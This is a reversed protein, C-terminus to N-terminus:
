AGTLLAILERVAQGRHSIANKEAADLEAATLDREPLLFLPDYGFGGDGREARLIEGHWSGQAILPAPDEAYRLLVLTCHFHAQRQGDPVEALAALLQRRNAADTDEGASFQGADAAFRASRVGPRGDLADVALGSDDALAPLGTQAAVARAKLIANEVFTLGTEEAPVIPFDAQLRLTVPLDRLLRALEAIKGANGSAVVVDGDISM